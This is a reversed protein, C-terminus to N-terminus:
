HKASPLHLRRHLFKKPVADPLRAPCWLWVGSFSTGGREGARHELSLGWLSAAGPGAAPPLPPPPCARGYKEVTWVKPQM